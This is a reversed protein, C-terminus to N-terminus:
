VITGANDDLEERLKGQIAQVLEYSMDKLYVDTKILEISKDKEEWFTCVIDLSDADIPIKIPIKRLIASM